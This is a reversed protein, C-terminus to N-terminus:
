LIKALSQQTSEYMGWLREYCDPTVPVLPLRFLNECLNLQALVAKVPGPNSEWFLSDVFPLLSNHIKLARAIDNSTFAKYLAVWAEPFVNSVVSIIGSGGVALSSLFTSDDGSLVSASSKIVTRSFLGMDASAEKVMTVGKISTLAAIAEPTLSQATRGPVHYLCIPKPQADAIAQYHAKLGLVSPKNYPPTVVLLCDVNSEAALRALEVTQATNNSGVGAMIRIRNGFNAKARRFLSLSEQVTLTPSEGTTGTVVIGTVGASAQREVLKDFKKWDVSGDSAFPTVIATWVGHFESNM